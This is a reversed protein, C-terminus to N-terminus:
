FRYESFEKLLFEKGEKSIQIAPHEEFAPFLWSHAYGSFAYVDLEVDILSKDTIRFIYRYKELDIRKQLKHQSFWRLFGLECLDNIRVFNDVDVSRIDTHRYWGCQELAQNKKRIVVEEKAAIIFKELQDTSFQNFDIPNKIAIRERM